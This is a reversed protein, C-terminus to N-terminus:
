GCAQRTSAQRTSVDMLTLEEKVVECPTEENTVECSMEEKIVEWPTEEHNATESPMTFGASVLCSNSSDTSEM